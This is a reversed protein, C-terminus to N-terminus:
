LHMKTLKNEIVAALMDEENDFETGFLAYISATTTLISYIGYGSITISPGTECHAIQTRIGFLVLVSVEVKIIPPAWEDFFVETTYGFKDCIFRVLWKPLISSGIYRKLIDEKNTSPNVGM